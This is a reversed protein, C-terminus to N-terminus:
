SNLCRKFSSASRFTSRRSSVIACEAPDQGSPRNPLGKMNLKRAKMVSSDFTGFNKVFVKDGGDVSEIVALFMREFIRILKWSPIDLDKSVKDAVNSLTVIKKKAMENGKDSDQQLELADLEGQIM